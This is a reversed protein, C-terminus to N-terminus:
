TDVQFGSLRELNDEHMKACRERWRRGNESTMPHRRSSIGYDNKWEGQMIAHYFEVGSKM